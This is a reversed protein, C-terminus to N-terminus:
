EADIIDRFTKIDNLKGYELSFAEKWKDNGNSKEVDVINFHNNPITLSHKIPRVSGKKSKKMTVARLRFAAHVNADLVGKARNKLRSTCRSMLNKNKDVHEAVFLLENANLEAHQM